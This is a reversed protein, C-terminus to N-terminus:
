GNLIMNGFSAFLDDGQNYGQQAIVGLLAFDLLSHAQDRGAEQTQALLKRSGDETYNAITFVPLAGNSLGTLLYDVAHDYMTKNDTFIGIAMLSAINCQDWNAYYHYIDANGNHENLFRRSYKAFTDTLMTAFSVRLGLTWGSYDRMLEAANAFQYGYIGAALYLDSSGDIDRLTSGWANLIEVSKDAYSENGTILWRLALQYAAAADNYAAAYNEVNDGTSGRVLVEVPRPVYNVQSHSNQSLLNYGTAWPKEGSEVHQKARAIDRATHLAGPHVFAWIYPAFTM